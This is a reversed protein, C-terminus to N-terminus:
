KRANEAESFGKRTTKLHRRFAPSPPNPHYFNFSLTGMQTDTLGRLNQSPSQGWVCKTMRKNM